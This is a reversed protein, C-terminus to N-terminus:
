QCAVIQAKFIVGTETKFGPNLEIFNNASFSVKASNIIHSTSQISNLASYYSSTSITANISLNLETGCATIQYIKDFTAVYLEGNNDEGFTTPNSLLVGKLDNTITNGRM